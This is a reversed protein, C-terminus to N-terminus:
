TGNRHTGPAFRALVQRTIEESAASRELPSRSLGSMGYHMNEYVEGASPYTQLMATLAAEPLSKSLAEQLRTVVIRYQAADIPAGSRDITELLHALSFATHVLSRTSEINTSSM